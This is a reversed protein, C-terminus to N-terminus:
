IKSKFLNLFFILKFYFTSIQFCVQSLIRGSKAGMKEVLEFIQFNWNSMKEILSDYDEVLM